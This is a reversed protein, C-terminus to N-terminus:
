RLVGKWGGNESQGVVGQTSSEQKMGWLSV